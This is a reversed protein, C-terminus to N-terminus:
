RSCLIDPEFVPNHHTGNVGNKEFGNTGTFVVSLRHRNKKGEKTRAKWHECYKAALEREEKRMGKRRYYIVEVIVIIIGAGIGVAVM